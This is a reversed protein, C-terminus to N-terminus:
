WDNLECPKKFYYYADSKEKRIKLSISGFKCNPNIYSEDRCINIRGYIANTEAPM